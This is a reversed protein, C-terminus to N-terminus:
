HKDRKLYICPALCHLATLPYDTFCCYRPSVPSATIQAPGVSDKFLTNQTQFIVSYARVGYHDQCVCVYVCACVCLIAEAQRSGRYLYGLECSTELPLRAPLICRYSDSPPRSGVILLPTDPSQCQFIFLICQSSNIISSRHTRQKDMCEYM